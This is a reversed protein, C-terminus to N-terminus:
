SGAPPSVDAEAEAEVDAEGDHGPGAQGCSRPTCAAAGAAGAGGALASVMCTAEAAGVSVGASGNSLTGSGRLRGLRRIAALRAMGSGRGRGSM